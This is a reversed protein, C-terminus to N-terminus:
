AKGLIRILIKLQSAFVLGYPQLSYYVPAPSGFRDAYIVLSKRCADWFIISFFGNIKSPFDIGYKLYLELAVRAPEGAAGKHYHMSHAEKEIEELNFAEGIFFLHREQDQAEFSHRTSPLAKEKKFWISFSDGFTRKLFNDDIFAFIQPPLAKMYGASSLACVGFFHGGLEPYRNSIYKGGSM